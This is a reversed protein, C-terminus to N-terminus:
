KQITTTVFELKLKVNKGTKAKWRKFQKKFTEEDLSSRDTVLRELFHELSSDLNGKNIRLYRNISCKVCIFDEIVEARFHKKMESLLDVAGSSPGFLNM